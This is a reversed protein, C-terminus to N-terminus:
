SPSRRPCCTHFSDICSGRVSCIEICYGTEVADAVLVLKALAMRMMRLALLSVRAIHWGLVTSTLVLFCLTRGVSLLFM